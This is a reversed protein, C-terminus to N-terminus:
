PLQGKVIFQDPLPEQIVEAVLGAEELEQIIVEPALRHEKHPGRETELTFDVIFIAGGARLGTAMKKTYDVRNPIHHWTDVILVRDTSAPALGPDSVTVVKAKVNLLKENEARLEMYRVMDTEIDLGLVSGTQGAAASLYPLFYGTGAGIDAVTMGAEIGMLTVVEKPMQWADRAPDDFRKAWKEADQFRRGLPESDGAHTGLGEDDHAHGGHPHSHHAHAHGKDSAQDAPKASQSGGCAFPAIALAALLATRLM